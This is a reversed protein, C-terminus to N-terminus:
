EIVQYVQNQFSHPEFLDGAKGMREKAGEDEDFRKVEKEYEGLNDYTVVWVMRDTDSGFLPQLIQSPHAWALNDTMYRTIEKSWELAEGWKGTKVQISRVNIVM